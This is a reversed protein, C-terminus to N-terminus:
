RGGMTIFIDVISSLLLLRDIDVHVGRIPPANPDYNYVMYHLITNGTSEDQINLNPEDKIFLLGVLTMLDNNQAAELLSEQELADLLSTPQGELRNEQNQQGESISIYGIMAILFLLTSFPADEM